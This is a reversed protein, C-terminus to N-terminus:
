VREALREAVALTTLHTNARPIEPVFSADAVILNDFGHREKNSQNSDYRAAGPKEGKIHCVEGVISGSQPDVLPTSCKPFACRNGSVAVLKKLTAETPRGERAVVLIM